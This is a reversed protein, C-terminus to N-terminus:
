NRDKRTPPTPDQGWTDHSCTTSKSSQMPLPLHRTHTHLRPPSPPPVPKSEVRALTGHVSLPSSVPSLPCQMLALKARPTGLHESIRKWCRNPYMLPSPLRALSPLIHYSISTCASLFARLLPCSAAIFTNPSGLPARGESLYHGLGPPSAQGGGTPMPISCPSYRYCNKSSRM